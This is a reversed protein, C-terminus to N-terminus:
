NLPALPVLREVKGLKHVPMNVFGPGNIKINHRSNGFPPPPKIMKKTTIINAKTSIALLQPIWYFSCVLFPDGRQAFLILVGQLPLPRFSKPLLKPRKLLTSAKPFFSSVSVDNNYM